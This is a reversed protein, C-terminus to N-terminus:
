RGTRGNANKMAMEVAEDRTSGHGLLHLLSVHSWDWFTESKGTPLWRRETVLLGAQWNLFVRPGECHRIAFGNVYDTVTEAADAIPSDDIAELM